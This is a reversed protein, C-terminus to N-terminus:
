SSRTRADTQRRWRSSHFLHPPNFPHSCSASRPAYLRRPVRRIMHITSTSTALLAEPIARRTSSASSSRQFSASPAMEQVFGADRGRRGTLRRISASRRRASAVPRDASDVAMAFSPRRLADERSARIARSRCGSRARSFRNGWSAGIVGAGSSRSAHSPTTMELDQAFARLQHRHGSRRGDRAASKARAKLFESLASRAPNVM